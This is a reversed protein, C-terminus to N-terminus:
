NKQPPDPNQKRKFINKMLPKSFNICLTIRSNSMGGMGPQSKSVKFGYGYTLNAIGWFSIGVEPLIKIQTTSNKMYYLATTRLCFFSSFIEFGIKPAYILEKSKRFNSEMGLRIGGFAIGDNNKEYRGILVNIDGFTHGQSIIGPSIAINPWNIKKTTDKKATKVPPKIPAPKIIPKPKIKKITDVTVAKVPTPKTIPKPTIKKVTDQAIKKVPVPIPKIAPKPETKKTTDAKIIKSPAPQAKPTTKIGKITDTAIPQVYEEEGEPVIKNTILTDNQPKTQGYSIQTLFLLIIYIYKRIM